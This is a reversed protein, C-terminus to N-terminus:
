VVKVIGEWFDLVVRGEILTGGPVSSTLIPLDM